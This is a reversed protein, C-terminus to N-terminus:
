IRFPDRKQWFEICFPLSNSRQASSRWICSQLTGAVPSKKRVKKFKWKHERLCSWDSVHFQQTFEISLSTVNHSFSFRRIRSPSIIQLVVGNIFTAPSSVPSGNYQNNGYTLTATYLTPPVSSNIVARLTYAVVVRTLM